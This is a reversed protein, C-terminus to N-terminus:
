YASSKSFHTSFPDRTQLVPHCWALSYFSTSNNVTKIFCSLNAIAKSSKLLSSGYESIAYQKPEAEKLGSVDDDRAAVDTVKPKLPQWTDGWGFGDYFHSPPGSSAM